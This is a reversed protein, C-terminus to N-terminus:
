FIRFSIAYTFAKIYQRMVVQLSVPADNNKLPGSEDYYGEEQSLPTNSWRPYRAWTDNDGVKSVSFVAATYDFM